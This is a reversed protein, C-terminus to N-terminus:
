RSDENMQLVTGGWGIGSADAVQELPRSGDIAAAEDLCGAEIAQQAMAKIQPDGFGHGNSVRRIRLFQMQTAAMGSM